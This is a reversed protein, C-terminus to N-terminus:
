KRFYKLLNEIDERKNDREEIKEIEIPVPPIAVNKERIKVKLIKNQEVMEKLQELTIITDESILAEVSNHSSIYTLFSDKSLVLYPKYKNIEADKPYVWSYGLEYAYNKATEFDLINECKIVYSM